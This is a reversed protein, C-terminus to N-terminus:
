FICAGIQVNIFVAHMFVDANDIMQMRMEDKKSASIYVSKKSHM